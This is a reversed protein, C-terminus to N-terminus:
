SKSKKKTKSVTKASKKKEEFFAKLTEINEEHATKRRPDVRIKFRVAEAISLGAKRLEGRSFGKGHRKKEDKKLITPQIKQM